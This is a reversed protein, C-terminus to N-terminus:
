CIPRHMVISSDAIDIGSADNLSNEKRPSDAAAAIVSSVPSLTSDPASVTPLVTAM